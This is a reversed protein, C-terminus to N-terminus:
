VYGTLGATQFLSHRRLYNGAPANLLGNHMMSGVPEKTIEKEGKWKVLFRFTRPTSGEHGIIREVEFLDSNKNKISRNVARTTKRKNVAVTEYANEEGTDAAGVELVDDARYIKGDDLKVKQGVLEVVKHTRATWVPLYSKRGIKEEKKQRTRVIDGVRYKNLPMSMIKDINLMDIAMDYEEAQNPALGGIGSHPTSNYARVIDKLQNVWVTNDNNIFTKGIMKKLTKSLADIVGLGNHDGIDVTTHMVGEREYLANCESNVFEAGNDTLLIRPKASKWLKMFGKAVAGMTKKGLAEAYAKRTYVDVLILIYQKGRNEVKYKQFDLLDALMLENPQLATMHGQISKNKIKFMQNIRKGSMFAKVDAHTINLGEMHAIEYLKSASPRAYTNYLEELTKM